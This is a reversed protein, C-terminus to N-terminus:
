GTPTSPLRASSIKGFFGQPIIELHDTCGTAENPCITIIPTSNATAQPGASSIDVSVGGVGARVLAPKM